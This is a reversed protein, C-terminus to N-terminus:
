FFRHSFVLEAGVRRGSLNEFEAFSTHQLVDIRLAQRADLFVRLGPSVALLVGQADDVWGAASLGLTPRLYDHIIVDWGTRMWFDGGVFCPGPCKGFSTPVGVIATVALRGARYAGGVFLDTRNDTPSACAGSRHLLTAIGATLKTNPWRSAKGAFAQLVLETDGRMGDRRGQEFVTDYPLRLRLGAADIEIAQTTRGFRRSWGPAVLSTTEARSRYGAHPDPMAMSGAFWRRQQWYAIVDRNKPLIARTIPREATHPAPLRRSASDYRGQLALRVARANAGDAAIEHHTPDVRAPDWRTVAAEAHPSTVLLGRTVPDATCAAAGLIAAGALVHSIGSRM